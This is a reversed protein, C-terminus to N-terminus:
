VDIHEPENEKRRLGLERYEQQFIEEHIRERHPYKIRGEAMAHVISKADNFEAEFDIDCVISRNKLVFTQPRVRTTHARFVGFPAAPTESTVLHVPKERYLYNRVIDAAVRFWSPRIFLSNGGAFACLDVTQGLHKEFRLLSQELANEMNSRYYDWGEERMIVHDYGYKMAISRYEDSDTSMIIKDCVGSNALTKLPFSFLHDGGILQINKNPFRRSKSSAM